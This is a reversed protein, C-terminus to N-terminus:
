SVINAVQLRTGADLVENRRQHLVALKRARDEISAKYQTRLRLWEEVYRLLLLEFIENLDTNSILELAQIIPSPGEKTNAAAEAKAKKRGAAAQKKNAFWGTFINTIIIFMM